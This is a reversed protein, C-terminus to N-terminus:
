PMARQSEVSSRHIPTPSAQLSSRLVGSFTCHASSAANSWTSNRRSKRMVPVLKHEFVAVLPAARGVRRTLGRRVQRCNLIHRNARRRNHDLLRGVYPNDTRHNVRLWSQLMEAEAQSVIGEAFIGRTLGILQDIQRDAMPKTTSTRWWTDSPQM